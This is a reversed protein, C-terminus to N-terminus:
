QPDMQAHFTRRPIPGPQAQMTEPQYQEAPDPIRKCSAPRSKGTSGPAVTCPRPPCSRKLPHPDRPGLPMSPLFQFPPKLRGCANRLDVDRLSHLTARDFNATLSRSKERLSPQNWTACFISASSTEYHWNMTYGTLVSAAKLSANRDHEGM